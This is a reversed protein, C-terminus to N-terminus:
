VLHRPECPECEMAAEDEVAELAEAIILEQWLAYEEDTPEWGEIIELDMEVEVSLELDTGDPCHIDGRAAHAAM